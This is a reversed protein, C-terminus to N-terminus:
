SRAKFRHFFSHLLLFWMDNHFGKIWNSMLKVKGQSKTDCTKKKKPQKLHYYFKVVIVAGHFFVLIQM